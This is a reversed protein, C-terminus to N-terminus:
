ARKKSDDGSDSELGDSFADEEITADSSDELGLAALLAQEQETDFGASESDPDIGTSSEGQESENEGDGKSHQAEARSDSSDSAAANDIHSGPEGATGCQANDSSSDCGLEGTLITPSERATSQEDPLPVTLGDTDLDWISAVTRDLDLAESGAALTRQLAMDASIPQKTIGVRDIGGPPCAPASMSVGETSPRIPAASARLRRHDRITQTSDLVPSATEQEACISSHVGEQEASTSLPPSGAQAAILGPM